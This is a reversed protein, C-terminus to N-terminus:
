CGVVFFLFQGALNNAGFKIYSKELSFICQNNQHSDPGTRQYMNSVCILTKSTNQIPLNVVDTANQASQTAEFWQLILGNPLKCWGNQALSQTFGIVSYSLTAQTGNPSYAYLTAM